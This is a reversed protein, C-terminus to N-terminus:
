NKWVRGEDGILHPASTVEFEATRKLCLELDM